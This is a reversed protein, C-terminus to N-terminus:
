LNKLYDSIAKLDDSDIVESFNKARKFIKNDITTDLLFLVKVGVKQLKELIEIGKKARMTELYGTGKVEIIYLDSGHKIVFDPHYRNGIGYEHYYSRINRIWFDIDECLDMQYALKYEHSSDFSNYEYYSKNFGTILINRVDGRNINIDRNEKLNLIEGSKSKKIVISTDPFISKLTKDAIKDNTIFYEKNITDDIFNSLFYILGNVYFQKSNKNNNKFKINIKNLKKIEGKLKTKIVPNSPLLTQSSIIKAVIKDIDIDELILPDSTYFGEGRNLNIDDILDKESGRKEESWNWFTQNKEHYTNEEVFIDLKLNEYTLDDVLKSHDDSYNSVIRMIPLSLENYKKFKAITKNQLKEEIM